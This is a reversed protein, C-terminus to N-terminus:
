GLGNQSERWLTLLAAFQGVHTCGVTCLAFAEEVIRRAFALRAPFEVHSSIVKGSTLCASLNWIFVSELLRVPFNM